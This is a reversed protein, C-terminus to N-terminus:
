NLILFAKSHRVTAWLSNDALYMVTYCQAPLWLWSADLLYGRTINLIRQESFCTQLDNQVYNKIFDQFHTNKVDNVFANLQKVGEKIGHYELSDQLKYLYTKNM